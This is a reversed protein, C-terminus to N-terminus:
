PTGGTLLSPVSLLILAPIGRAPDAEVVSRLMALGLAEPRSAPLTPCLGSALARVGQAEAAFVPNLHYIPTTDGIGRLASVVEAFRGAPRNEYGDSIVFIAEPLTELLDVLAEALGTDGQPRVLMSDAASPAGGAYVVRAPGTHQLLDRLALAAALPRLKQEASGEMSASADVLIGITGYRAPFARAAARAKDLLARAIEVTMGMEFAYLYLRVADYQAPDMRVDVEAEHAQRQVSM